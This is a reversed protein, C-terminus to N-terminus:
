TGSFSGCLGIHKVQHFKNALGRWEYDIVSHTLLNGRSVRKRSMSNLQTDNPKNGRFHTFLVPVSNQEEQLKRQLEEAQQREVVLAAERAAQEEILRVEAEERAKFEKERDAQLSALYEDDQQERILRQATLSPSPPPPAPRAYTGSGDFGNQMYQHPAYPVHYSSGEPIGGFIAAELMVAEDHELSSIGGWSTLKMTSLIILVLITNHIHQRPSGENDRIETGSDVSGSSM